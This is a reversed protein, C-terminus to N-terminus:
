GMAELAAPGAGGAGGRWGAAGEQAGPTTPLKQLLPTVRSLQFPFVGPRFPFAEREAMFARGPSGNAFTLTQLPFPSFQVM